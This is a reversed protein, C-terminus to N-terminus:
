RNSEKHSVRFRRVLNKTVEAPFADSVDSAEVVVDSLQAGSCQCRALVPFELEKETSSDAGQQLEFISQLQFKEGGSLESVCWLVVRKAENWVGGPPNCQVTDGRVGEPVSMIITLHALQSPNQPNSSIQLAVRCSKGQTRVRSQVRIPVPRLSDGCKYRVVPFYEEERPVKITYTFERSAVDVEQSVNTVYKKNEQLARIHGSQDQFVLFFPIPAQEEPTAEEDHRSKVRVQVTGEVTLSSLKSKKYECTLDENLALGVELHRTPEAEVAAPEVPTSPYSDIGPASAPSKPASAASEAASHVDESRETLAGESEQSFSRSIANRIVQPSAAVEPSDVAQQRQSVVEPSGEGKPRAVTTQPSPAQEPVTQTPASKADEEDEEVSFPDYVPQPALPPKDLQTAGVSKATAAGKKKRQFFRSRSSVSKSSDRKSKSLAPVSSHSASGVTYRSSVTATDDGGTQVSADDSSTGMASTSATGSVSAGGPAHYQPHSPPRYEFGSLDSPVGPRGFRGSAGGLGKAKRPSKFAMPSSAGRKGGKGAGDDARSYKPLAMDDEVISMLELQQATRRVMEAHNVISKGEGATNNAADLPGDGGLIAEGAEYDAQGGKGKGGKKRSFTFLKKRFTGSSTVSQNAMLPVTSETLLKQVSANTPNFPVEDHDRMLGDEDDLITALLARYMSQFHAADYSATPATELAAFTGMGERLRGPLTAFVSSAGFLDYAPGTTGVTLLIAGGRKQSTKADAVSQLSHGPLLVSACNSLLQLADKEGAGGDSLSDCAKSVDAVHVAVYFMTLGSSCNLHHSPPQYVKVPLHGGFPGRPENPTSGGEPVPPDEIAGAKTDDQFRVRTPTKVDEEAPAGGKEDIATSKTSFDGGGGHEEDPANIGWFDDRLGGEGMVHRHLSDIGRQCAGENLYTLPTIVTLTEKVVAHTLERAAAPPGASKDAEGGKDFLPYLPVEKTEGGSTRYAITEGGEHTAPETDGSAINKAVDPAVQQSFDADEDPHLRLQVLMSLAAFQAQPLPCSDLLHMKIPRDKQSLVITDLVVLRGSPGKLEAQSSETMGMDLEEKRIIFAADHGEKKLKTLERLEKITFAGQVHGRRGVVSVHEVGGKLVELVSTPTDTDILGPQGKALIRAADLAVNGQGIVVVRIPSVQANEEGDSSDEKDDPWLCRKVIPGIHGFEPHGNYWAVFERASLVGELDEGDIGLSKDAQCGYALIVVHYLSQLTSLSVDKGVDVNGFYSLSSPSEATEGDGAVEEKQKRFLAAFDNEVNKVEPHDPAVGYRVLGFPTPLREIIDVDIGSWAFAGETSQMRKLVSSTLYKASYFGSPGAGVIAVSLRPKSQSESDTSEYNDKYNHNSGDADVFVEFDNDHFIVSNHETLTGWVDTEEMYAGVYLFDDDWRMKVKTRFKPKTETAIDVFGESWDVGAWFPKTLDGDIPVAPTPGSTASRGASLPARLAVYQRPYIADYPSPARGVAPDPPVM